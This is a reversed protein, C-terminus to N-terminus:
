LFLWFLAFTYTLILAVAAGAINWIPTLILSITLNVSGMALSMMLGLRVGHVGVAGIVQGLSTQVM